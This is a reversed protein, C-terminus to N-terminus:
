HKTFIKLLKNQLYLIPVIILKFTFIIDLQFFGDCLRLVNLKVITLKNVIRPTKRIKKKSRIVQPIAPCFDNIISNVYGIYYEFGFKIHLKNEMFFLYNYDINNKRHHKIFYLMDSIRIIGTIYISQIIQILIQNEITPTHYTKNNLIIKDPKSFLDYKDTYEGIRGFSGHYIELELNYDNIYYQTRQGYKNLM